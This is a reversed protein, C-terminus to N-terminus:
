WLLLMFIIGFLKFWLSPLTRSATGQFYSFATPQLAVSVSDNSSSDATASAFNDSSGFNAPSVPVASAAAILESQNASLFASSLTAESSNTASQSSSVVGSTPIGITAAPSGVTELAGSPSPFLYYLSATGASSDTPSAAVVGNDLRSSNSSGNDLEVHNGLSDLGATITSVAHVSSAPVQVALAAASGSTSGVEYSSTVYSFSVTSRSGSALGALPQPFPQQELPLSSASEQSAPAISSVFSDIGTAPAYQMNLSHALPPSSGGAQPGEVTDSPVGSRQGNQGTTFPTMSDYNTVAASGVASDTDGALAISDRPSSNQTTASTTLQSNIVATSPAYSQALQIYAIPASSLMAARDTPSSSEPTSATRLAPLIPSAVEQTGIVPESLTTIAAEVAPTLATAFTGAVASDPIVTSGLPLTSIRKSELGYSTGFALASAQEAGAETVQSLTASAPTTSKTLEPALTQIGANESLFHYQDINQVGSSQPLGATSGAILTSLRSLSPQNSPLSGEAQGVVFQDSTLTLLDTSPTSATGSSGPTIMPMVAVGSSFTQSNGNSIVALTSSPTGAFSSATQQVIGVLPTDSLVAQSTESSVVILSGFLPHISSRATSLSPLPYASDTRTPLALGPQGAGSSMLYSKSSSASSDPIKVSPSSLEGRSTDSTVSISTKTERSLNVVETAATSAHDKDKSQNAVSSDVKKRSSALSNTSTQSKSQELTALSSSNSFPGQTQISKVTTLQAYASSTLTAQLSIINASTANVSIGSLLSQGLSYTSSKNDKTAKDKLSTHSNSALAYTYTANKDNVPSSSSPVSPSSTGELESKFGYGPPIGHSPGQPSPLKTVYVSPTNIFGGGYAGGLLAPTWVPIVSPKEVDKEKETTSSPSPVISYSPFDLKSTSKSTESASLSPIFPYPTSRPLVSESDNLRTEPNESAESSSPYTLPVTISYVIIPPRTSTEIKSGISTSKQPLFDKESPRKSESSSDNVRSSAKDKDSPYSSPITEDTVVLITSTISSVESISTSSTVDKATKSSSHSDGATTATVTTGKWTQPEKDKNTSTVSERGKNQFSTSTLNSSFLSPPSTAKSWIPKSLQQISSLPPTSKDKGIASTLDDKSSLTTSYDKGKDKDESSSTKDKAPLQTLTTTVKDKDPLYTTLDKAPLQTSSSGINDKDKDPLPTTMDKALLPTTNSAPSDKNLNSSTVGTTPMLSFFSKDKDKDHVPTFTILSKDYGSFATVANALTSSLSATEDASGIKKDKPTM